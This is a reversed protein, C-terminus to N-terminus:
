NQIKMGLRLGQQALVEKIENLSKREFSPLRQLDAESKQVLDGITVVENSRLRNASRVSLKLETSNSIRSHRSLM